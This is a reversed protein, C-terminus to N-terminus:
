FGFTGGLQFLRPPTLGTGNQGGGASATAQGFTTGSRVVISQVPSANLSNFCDLRVEVTRGKQFTFRKTARLDLVPINELKLSGPLDTNVVVSAVEKGGQLLVQRALRDGSRINYSFGGLIGKPFV